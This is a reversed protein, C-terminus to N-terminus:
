ALGKDDALWMPIEFALEEGENPLERPVLFNMQSKPIWYDNEEVTILVAKETTGKVTGDFEVLEDSEDDFHDRQREVSM